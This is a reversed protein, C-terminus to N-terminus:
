RMSPLRARSNLRNTKGGGVQDITELPTIRQRVLGLEYKAALMRRVSEDIRQEKLRGKASGRARRSLGRRRGGAEVAHDAGAELARVSAEDQKFYITLGSMSMADTVIIGAFSLIAECCAM